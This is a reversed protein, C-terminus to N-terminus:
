GTVISEPSAGETCGPIVVDRGRALRAEEQFSITVFVFSPQGPAAGAVAAPLSVIAVLPPVLGVPGRHM